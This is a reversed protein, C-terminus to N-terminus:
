CGGPGNGSCMQRSRTQMDNVADQDHRTQEAWERKTKCIKTPFRTGTVPRNHCVVKDDDPAAVAPAPPPASAAAPDSAPATQLAAALGIILLVSM